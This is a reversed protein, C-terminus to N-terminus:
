ATTGPETRKKWHSWPKFVSVSIIIVFALAEILLGRRIYMHNRLFDENVLAAQGIEEFLGINLMMRDELFFMGYLILCIVAFFKFTVWKHKFLGWNTLLANMLGSLLSGIGGWGIVNWAISRMHLYATRTSEYDTLDAGYVLPFWSMVGGFWIAICVIHITKLLRAGRGKLKKM